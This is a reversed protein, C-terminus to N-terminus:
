VIYYMIEVLGVVKWRYGALKTISKGVSIASEVVDFPIGYFRLHSRLM